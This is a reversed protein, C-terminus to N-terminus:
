KNVENQNCFKSLAIYFDDPKQTGILLRAGDKFFLQIGIKGYVNFARGAPGIRIGWGGYDLIPSYQRIKFRKIIDFSYTKFKMFPFLRVHIGSKTIYTELKSSFFLLLIGVAFVVSIIMSILLGQNSLPKDGFPIKEVTQLYYGYVFFLLPFLAAIVVLVILPKQKFKQIEYFEIKENLFPKM